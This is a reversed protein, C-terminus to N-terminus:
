AMRIGKADFLHLPEPDASVSLSQGPRVDVRQRLLLTVAHEGIQGQILRESGTPDVNGVELAVGEPDIQLHEPRIGLQVKGSVGARADRWCRGAFIVGDDEISAPFLNMAPSGIFSAVFTEIPRHYIELPAGAQIVDGDKMVVIQDHTVHITTVKLRSHLTKLEAQMQVRLQADLNSLPEDFLFVQPQRVITRGMAVRQRQGCSLQKPLRDLYDTLGLITAAREVAARREAKSHSLLRMSFGMNDVVTMHPYLAYNQFVMAIVRHKPEVENVVKGGIAVFADSFTFIDNPRAQAVPGDGEFRVSRLANDYLFYAHGGKATEALREYLPRLRDTLREALAPDHTRYHHAFTALAEVGRGQIWGYTWDPGRLGDAAGYGRGTLADVKTDLFACHLAPRALM